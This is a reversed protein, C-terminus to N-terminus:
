KFIDQPTLYEGATIITDVLDLPIFDFYRNDIAYPQPQRIVESSQHSVQKHPIVNKGVMRFTDTLVYVPVDHERAMLCLAYTGIKNVFHDPMVADAGLVVAQATPVHLGLAADVVLTVSIGADRFFWALLHGEGKPRSESVVVRIGLRGAYELARAVASSYSTTIVTSRPKLLRILAQANAHQQAGILAQLEAAYQRVGGETLLRGKSFQKRLFYLMGMQPHGRIITGLISTITSRLEPKPSDRLKRAVRTVLRLSNIALTTAGSRHDNVIRELARQLSPDLNKPHKQLAM